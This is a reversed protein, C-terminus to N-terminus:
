RRGDGEEGADELRIREKRVRGRVTRQETHEEVSLHVREKAEVTTQVVPREEHLTVVREAESIELGSPAGDRNEETIPERVLRVEEHRVPVTQQQEEIEVYKHLRARGTAHREVGVHMTEESRTMTEGAMAEDDTMADRTMAGSATGAPAGQATTTTRPQQQAARQATAQGDMGPRDMGPRDAAAHRPAAQQGAAPQGAMQEGTTGLGAAQEAAAQQGTANQGTAPRGATPQGAAQQKQVPQRGRSQQETHERLAADWDIGYFDFLRHEEKASLHGGADVNVHPADKIKDKGYPVQLHGEAMVADRVPVFTEGSGLLGTKVTVWEPRGTANDYFVHRVKGLKQGGNGYVSDHLVASIEQQTIM